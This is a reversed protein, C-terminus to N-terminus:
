EAEKKPPPPVPPTLAEAAMTMVEQPTKGVIKALEVATKDFDAHEGFAKLATVCEAEKGPVGAKTAIKRCLIVDPDIATSPETMGILHPHVRKNFIGSSFSTNKYNGWAMDCALHEVVLIYLM